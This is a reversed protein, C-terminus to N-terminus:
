DLASFKFLKQCLQEFAAGFVAGFNAAQVILSFVLDDGARDEGAFQEAAKM